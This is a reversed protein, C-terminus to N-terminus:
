GMGKATNASNRVVMRRTGPYGSLRRSLKLEVSRADLDPKLRSALTKHPSGPPSSQDSNIRILSRVREWGAVNTQSFVGVGSIAIHVPTEEAGTETRASLSTNSSAGTM